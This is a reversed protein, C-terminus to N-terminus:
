PEENIKGEPKALPNHYSFVPTFLPSPIPVANLHHFHVTSTEFTELNKNSFKDFFEVLLQLQPHRWSM